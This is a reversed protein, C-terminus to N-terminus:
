QRAAGSRWNAIREAAATIDQNAADMETAAGTLQQGYRARAADAGRRGGDV